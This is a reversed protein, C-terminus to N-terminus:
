FVRGLIKRVEAEVWVPVQPEIAQVGHSWSNRAPVRAHTYTGVTGKKRRASGKRKPAKWTTGAKYSGKELLGVLPKPNPSVAVEHDSKVDYRATIKYSGRKGGRGWNYLGGPQIKPPLAVKAKAGVKTTVERLAAGSLGKQVADLKRELDAFSDAM